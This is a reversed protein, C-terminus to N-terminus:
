EGVGFVLADGGTCHQGGGNGAGLLPPCAIADEFAVPPLGLRALIRTRRGWVVGIRLPHLVLAFTADADFRM